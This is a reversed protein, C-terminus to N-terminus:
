SYLELAVCQYATDSHTWEINEFSHKRLKLKPKKRTLDISSFDTCFNFQKHIVNLSIHQMAKSQLIPLLKSTQLIGNMVYDGLTLEYVSSIHHVQVDFLADHAKININLMKYKKIRYFQQSFMKQKLNIMQKTLYNRIKEYLDQVGSNYLNTLIVCM